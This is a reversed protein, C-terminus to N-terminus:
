NDTARFQIIRIDHGLTLNKAATERNGELINLTQHNGALFSIIKNCDERGAWRHGSRNESVKTRIGEDNSWSLYIRTLKELGLFSKQIYTANTKDMKRQERERVSEFEKCFTV